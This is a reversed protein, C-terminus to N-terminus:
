LIAAVVRNKGSLDKRIDVSRYSLKELKDKVERGFRENIELIILGGQTLHNKCTKGIADYFLLPDDDPVFLASHPEYNLVNVKMSSKESETVYPPNSTIVDYKEQLPIGSLIDCPLFKVKTSHLRNNEEAMEIATQSIDIGTADVNPLELSLTIPICGSGTGIDLLPIRTRNNNKKIHELVTSVILETEPRPILVSSNVKFTRGYFDQRGTIYQIPEGTNIRAVMNDLDRQQFDTIQNNAIVQSKSVGFLHEMLLYAISNIEDKSEDIAINEIVWKFVAKSNPM